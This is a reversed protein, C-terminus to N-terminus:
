WDVGGLVCVQNTWDEVQMTNVNFFMSNVTFDRRM